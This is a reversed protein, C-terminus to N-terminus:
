SAAANLEDLVSQAAEEPTAQGFLVTENARSYTDEMVSSVGTNLRYFPQTNVEQSTVVWDYFRKDSDNLDASLAEAVETNAPIGRDLGMIDAADQSNALYNVFTAAAEPYETDASISLYTGQKTWGGRETAQTEGPWQVPALEHGAQTEFQGLQNMSIMAIAAKDNGILSQEPNNGATYLEQAEDAPNSAGEDVLQQQFTFFDALTAAQFDAPVSADDSQGFREGHQRLWLNAVQSTLELQYGVADCDADSIAKAAAEFDDWSWTEDDPIDVGCTEFVTPNIVIGHGSVGLSVGYLEGNAGTVDSFTEDPFQSLDLQDSVTALDLLSGADMYDYMFPDIQTMVDPLDGAASATSLKTIYDDYNSFETEVTIDPYEAEFADVVQQQLKARTDSGWWNFRITAQEGSGSEEGSGSGDGSSCAALPLAVAAAVALAGRTILRSRRM